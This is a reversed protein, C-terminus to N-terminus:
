IIEIIKAHDIVNSLRDILLNDTSSLEWFGGDFYAITIYIENYMTKEEDINFRKFKNPMKDILLLLDFIQHFGSIITILENFSFKILNTGENVEEYFQIFEGEFNDTPIGDFFPISFYYQTILSDYNIIAELIKILESSESEFSNIKLLKNQSM